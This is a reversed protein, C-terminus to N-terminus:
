INNNLLKTHICFYVRSLPVMEEEVLKMASLSPYLTQNDTANGMASLPPASPGQLFFRSM